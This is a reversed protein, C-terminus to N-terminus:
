RCRAGPSFRRSVRRGCRWAPLILVEYFTTLALAVPFLLVTAADSLLAQSSRFLSFPQRAKGWRFAAFPNGSIARCYRCYIADYQGNNEEDAPWVAVAPGAPWCCLAAAVAIAGSVQLRPYAYHNKFAPVVLALLIAPFVADLGITEPAPRLKGVGAGM